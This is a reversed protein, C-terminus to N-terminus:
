EVPPYLQFCYERRKYLSPKGFPKHYQLYLMFRPMVDNVSVEGFPLEAAPVKAPLPINWGKSRRFHCDLLLGCSLNLAYEVVLLFTTIMPPPGAPRVAARSSDFCPTRAVTSSASLCTPPM